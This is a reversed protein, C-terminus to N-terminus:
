FTSYRVKQEVERRFAADHSYRPDSMAKIMENQSAFGEPSKKSPAAPVAAKSVSRAAPKGFTKARSAGALNIITKITAIDRNELARGLSEAAESNTTELHQYLTQFKDHGGALEMISNVYQDVLAEQGKIYSDVFSRNYGAAELAEYSADSIGDNQYETQIRTITEADLGREAAQEVMTQFGAEHEGLQNATETLEVPTDGIPTFETDVEQSDDESEDNEESLDEGEPAEEQHEGLPDETNLRVSIRGDEEEDGFPDRQYGYPDEPDFESLTIKDDGDRTDVDLALMAQEHEEPSDGVVVSSNLGFSAYVDANTDSM